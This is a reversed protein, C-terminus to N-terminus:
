AGCLLGYQSTWLLLQGIQYKMPFRGRPISFFFFRSSNPSACAEFGGWLKSLTALRRLLSVRRKWVSSARVYEMPVSGLASKLAWDYSDREEEIVALGFAGWLLPLGLSDRGLQFAEFVVDIEVCLKKRASIWGLPPWHYWRMEFSGCQGSSLAFRSALPINGFPCYTV